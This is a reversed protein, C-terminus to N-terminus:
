AEMWYIDNSAVVIQIDENSEISLTLLEMLASKLHDRACDISVAQSQMRSSRMKTELSRLVKLAEGIENMVQAPTHTPQQGDM